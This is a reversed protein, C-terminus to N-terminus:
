FCDKRDDIWEFVRILGKFRCYVGTRVTDKFFQVDGDYTAVVIDPVGDFDIDYLLPSVHLTSRHQAEFATDEAGARGELVHLRRRFGPVIVDKRGDSYLDTILPTAYVSSALETHWRM